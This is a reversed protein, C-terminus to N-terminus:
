KLNDMAKKADKLVIDAWEMYKSNNFEGDHYVKNEDIWRFLVDDYFYLRNEFDSIHVFAFYLEGNKYYYDRMYNFSSDVKVSIKRIENTKDDRYVTATMGNKVGGTVNTFRTAEVDNYEARIRKVEAETNFDEPLGNRVTKVTIVKDEKKMMNNILFGSVCLLGVVIVILLTIIINKESGSRSRSQVNRPYEQGAYNMSQYENVDVLKSGCFECHTLNSSAAQRHCNACIKM